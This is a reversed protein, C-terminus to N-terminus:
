QLRNKTRRERRKPGEIQATSRRVPEHEAKETSTPDEEKPIIRRYTGPYESSAGTTWSQNILWVAVKGQRISSIVYQLRTCSQKTECEMGLSASWVGAIHIRIYAQGSGSNFSCCQLPPLFTVGAEPEHLLPLPGAVQLRQGHERLLDCPVMYAEQFLISCELKSQYSMPPNSSTRDTSSMNVKLLVSDKQRSPLQQKTSMSARNPCPPQAWWFPTLLSNTKRFDTDALPLRVKSGILRGIVSQIQESM